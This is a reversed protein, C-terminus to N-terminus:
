APSSQGALRSKLTDAIRLCLAIVTLTPNSFGSTPFVSSSGIYLNDYDHVRCDPGVVSQRPDTGMRTTGMHHSNDVFGGDFQLGEADIDGIDLRKWEDRVLDLFRKASKTELGTLRWDLVTRRMGLSDVEDGLMVRSHPNPEQEISLGLHPNTSGVSAPQRLVFHRYAAAFLRAPDRAISGLATPIEHYQHSDRMIRLLNKGAAAADDELSPYYIEAGINLIRDHRQVAESATLKFAYRIGARRYSDHWASFRVPDKATVRVKLGPHDQFFRGVVDHQNGIGDPEVSNSALLLRASEIGGCCIVFAKARISAYQSKFGAARLERVAGTGTAEIAVVNAHTILRINRASDLLARYKEFFNPMHTFQSYVPVIRDSQYAPPVGEAKPWTDRGYSEHPIQMVEEARRYFPLLEDRKIPWGSHAVWDRQQFDISTLPLAQGAWLATTGGIQRARGEHVGRHPLGIVKSQYPEQAPAEFRRGGGELM